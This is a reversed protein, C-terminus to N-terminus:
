WTWKGFQKHKSRNKGHLKRYSLFSLHGEWRILGSSPLWRAKRVIRVYIPIMGSISGAYNSGIRTNVKKGSKFGMISNYNDYNCDTKRHWCAMTVSASLDRPYSISVSGACSSRGQFACRSKNTIETIVTDSGYVRKMSRFLATTVSPQKIRIAAWTNSWRPLGQSLSKQM